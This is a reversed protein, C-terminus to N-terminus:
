YPQNEKEWALSINRTIFPMKAADFIVIKLNDCQREQIIKQTTCPTVKPEASAAVLLTMDGEGVV